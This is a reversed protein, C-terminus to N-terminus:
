GWWWQPTYYTVDVAERDRGGSEDEDPQERPM